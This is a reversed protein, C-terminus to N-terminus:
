INQRGRNCDYNKKYKVGGVHHIVNIWKRINFQDKIESFFEIHGYTNKKSM